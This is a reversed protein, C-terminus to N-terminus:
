IIKIASQLNSYLSKVVLCQNKFLSYNLLKDVKFSVM